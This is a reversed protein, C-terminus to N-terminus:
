QIRVITQVFAKLLYCLEVHLCNKERMRLVGLIQLICGSETCFLTNFISYLICFISYLIYVISSRAQMWARPHRCGKYV